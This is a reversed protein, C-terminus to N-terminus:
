TTQRARASALTSDAGYHSSLFQKMKKIKIEAQDIFQLLFNFELWSLLVM